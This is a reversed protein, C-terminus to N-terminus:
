QSKRVRVEKVLFENPSSIANLRFTWGWAGVFNADKVTWSIEQWADSAPINRYDTGVYGRSSEYDISLGALKDSAIRKVVATIEFTKVDLAAFQPDVRFYVYHGEKDSRSFDTRRWERDAITTDRSIQKIGNEVNREGLLLTALAIGRYDVTWPYPKRQQTQAKEVLAFPLDEVLVPTGTLTLSEGAPLARKEGKLSSLRVDGDFVIKVERKAGAWAALVPKRENNFVFGYSGEGLDLWGASAPEAGLTTALVKLADYSPRPTMDSRILGLDTGNGYSPGRAEFWFVRQFGAAISLLYAKALAVAQAQDLTDDRKVPAASGIETIWLPTDPPQHNAELMKRLTTTMNLFAPEGGDALGALIEYPHICIYDFYSAAGAKIAADLFRVDFNAVSMGIKTTPDVKKAAISAERVLEAYIGPSGGEAFSGNFENWVEWYKIDSHYRAVMGTVYDRWFRIDKIPFKRTGGDASAWPAFYAFLGTLHIDNARANEVLRDSLTFDWHGQQPQITQWEYFGRLWRVGAQKLMPNFVPYDSFWEAGSAVGWPSRDDRPDSAPLSTRTSQASCPVCFALASILLMWCAVKQGMSSRTDVLFPGHNFM